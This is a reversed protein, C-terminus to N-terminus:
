PPPVYPVVRVSGDPNNTHIEIEPELVLESGDSLRIKSASTEGAVSVPGIEGRAIEAYALSQGVTYGPTSGERAISASESFKADVIRFTGEDTRILNDPIILVRRGDSLTVLLRM